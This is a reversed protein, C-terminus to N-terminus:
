SPCKNLILSSYFFVVGDFKENATTKKHKSKRSFPSFDKAGKGKKPPIVQTGMAVKFFARPFKPKKLKKNM